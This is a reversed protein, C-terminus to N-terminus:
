EGGFEKLLRMNLGYRLEHSLRNSRVWMGLLFLAVGHILMINEFM